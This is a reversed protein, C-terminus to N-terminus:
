NGLIARSSVIVNEECFENFEIEETTMSKSKVVSKAQHKKAIDLFYTQAEEKNKAWWVQAGREKIKTEFEELLEPWNELVKDKISGALQRAEEWNQFQGKKMIDVQVEYTSVAKLIKLRHTEDLAKNKGQDMFTHYESMPKIRISTGM